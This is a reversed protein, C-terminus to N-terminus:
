NAPAGAKLLRRTVAEFSACVGEDSGSGSGEVDHAVGGGEPRYGARNRNSGDDTGDDHEDAVFTAAISVPVGSHLTIIPTPGISLKRVICGELINFVM